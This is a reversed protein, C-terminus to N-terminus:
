PKIFAQILLSIATAARSPSLVLTKTTAYAAPVGLIRTFSYGKAPGYIQKSGDWFHSFGTWRDFLGFHPDKLTVGYLDSFQRFFSGITGFWDVIFSFPVIAWLVAAPNALGLRSLLYLNPNTVYVESQCYGITIHDSDHITGIKGYKSYARYEKKLRTTVRIRGGPVPGSLTELANFIDGVLPAWGLWYELWLAATERSTRRLRRKKKPKGQRAMAAALDPGNPTGGNRLWNWIRRLLNARGAVMRLAEESEALTVGIEASSGFAEVFKDRLRTRVLKAHSDTIGIHATSRTRGLVSDCNRNQGAVTANWKVYGSTCKLPKRDIGPRYPVHKDATVRKYSKYYSGPQDFWTYSYSQVAM